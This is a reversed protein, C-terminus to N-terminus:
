CCNNNNKEKKAESEHENEKSDEIQVSCCEQQKPKLKSIAKKFSSKEM